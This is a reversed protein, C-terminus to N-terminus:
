GAPKQAILVHEHTMKLIHGDRDQIDDSDSSIKVSTDNGYKRKMMPLLYGQEYQWALREEEHQRRRYQWEHYEANEYGHQFAFETPPTEFRENKWGASFYWGGPKLLDFGVQERPVGSPGFPALRVLIIDFIATQFPLGERTNARFLTVDTLGATKAQAKEIIPWSFDFAYIDTGPECLEALWQTFHGTGM